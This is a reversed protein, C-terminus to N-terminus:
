RKARGGLLPALLMGAVFGGAHAWWAVGGANAQAALHSQAGSVFQILFWFALFFFAPVERITIFIFIPILTIVRSHPFYFFYAGLVGAIAGSAGIMPLSSAPSMLAQALAALVGVLVYFMLFRVHGIQDEVNDGFIYLYLMNSILHLWGGHMFMSSFLTLWHASPDAFFLKPVFGWQRMFHDLQHPSMQLERYFVYANLIVLAWGIFPFRRAKVTDRLPIM